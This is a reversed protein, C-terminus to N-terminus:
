ENPWGVKEKQPIERKERHKMSKKIVDENQYMYELFFGVVALKVVQTHELHWLLEHIEENLYGYDKKGPVFMEGHGTLLWNLNLSYVKLLALMLNPSPKNKGTETESIMGKSLGTKESLEGITINQSNRFLKLRQGTEQMNIVIKSKVFKRTM